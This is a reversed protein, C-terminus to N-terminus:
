EEKKPAMLGYELKHKNRIQEQYDKIINKLTSVETNKDIFEAEKIQNSETLSGDIKSCMGFYLNNKIRVKKLDFHKLQLIEHQVYDPLGDFDVPRLKTHCVMASMTHEIHEPPCVIFQDSGQINFGTIIFGGTAFCMFSRLKKGGKYYQTAPRIDYPHISSHGGDRIDLNTICARGDKKWKEWSMDFALLIMLLLFLSTPWIPVPYEERVFLFTFISAAALIYYNYERKWEFKGVIM